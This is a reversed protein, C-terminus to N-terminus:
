AAGPDMDMYMLEWNHGDLDEFGHGCMNGHDRPPRPVRGGAQQAKAVLEDVERRSECSICNAVATYLKTDAIDKDTFSKYFPHTLLMAYINEGIIMCAAANNSFKPEFAFGLESFFARSRKLDAVPLNLYIQKHM